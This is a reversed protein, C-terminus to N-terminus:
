VRSVIEAAMADLPVSVAGLKAEDVCRPMGYVVCSASSQTLLAGGAAVLERAGALGDDGMGTLIVGLAAPGAAAAGSSFLDDVSPTYTREPRGSVRAVFKAEVREILLHMGGPAIVAMGPRLAVGDAAEVVHLPSARDLRRALAETYGAPIHLAVAIPAGLTAPLQSLLRTLAQPGGTSTGILVLSVPPPVLALASPKSAVPPPLEVASAQALSGAAALIKAVLEAGIDRLRDAGSGAPKSILEIAGLSLAEAGIETDITSMSVAIVRPRPRGGLVRLVELGNVGPMTLDLTVVDPDLRTIRELGDGGDGAAGVVEIVGSARMLRTLVSRAFASDDIVLVRPRIM